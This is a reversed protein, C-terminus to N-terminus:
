LKIDSDLPEKSTYMASLIDKFKHLSVCGVILSVVYNINYNYTDTTHYMIPWKM